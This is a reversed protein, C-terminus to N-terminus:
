RTMKKVFVVVFLALTFSGIFAELAAILRSFGVPTIDGYGLTTFTVVSYYLCDFWFFLIEQGQFNSYVLFDGSYSIGLFFYFFSAIFILFISFLVVRIPSEGYGCFLDILKSLFRPLSFLPMQFRRMRLEKQIFNGAMSFLGQQESLKRLDRYIEESQEFYDVAAELDNLKLHRRAESEHLIDGGIELHEIRAQEWKIGLLNSDTVNAFHLNSERLDSKMLNSDSLNVNFLHAGRLNARYFNSQSLDFGHRAGRNVLNVHSLDARELQLGCSIGQARVFNELKKSLDMNTKDIHPNHWFCLDDQEATETCRNGYPDVYTCQKKTEAM